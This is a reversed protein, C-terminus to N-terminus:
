DLEAKTKNLFDQLHRHLKTAIEKIEGDRSLAKMYSRSKSLQFFTEIVNDCNRVRDERALDVGGMVASKKIDVIPKSFAVLVNYASNLGCKNHTEYKSDIMDQIHPMLLVVKEFNLMDIRKNKAFTSNLIDMCVTPDKIMTLSNLASAIDNKNLIYNMVMKINAIRRQMVGNFTQHKEMCENIIEIDKKQTDVNEAEGPRDFASMDLNVPEDKPAAIYTMRSTDENAEPQMSVDQQQKPQQVINTPLMDISEDFNIHALHSFYISITEKQIASVLLLGSDGSQSAVKMDTITKPPLSLCDLQKNTEVNWLRVHDSSAAFLLDANDEYFSLHRIDSSDVSTVCINKFSELDWYKVTKDTSGSAM